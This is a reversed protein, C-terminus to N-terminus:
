LERGILAELQARAVRYDFRAQILAARAQDLQTQSTLLDLLTSAGLGYRQQQVRVDEEAAAVSAQQIRIRQEATRLLGLSQVLSQQAALRADRLQAESTRLAVDARVVTEERALQNFLPYSLTFRVSKSSPYSGNAFVIADGANWGSGALNGSYSANLSLTPLYPTRAARTAARAAVRNAEAQAVAPGEIALRSLELSDVPVFELTLTDSPAATVEFSAGVVRTLAANAARLDNRATLLALQANGVQIVSRLSDSKTAVGAAVRASAAKLQQEAQALQARAAAESERAALVAYYQQKVGLAVDFRAATESAEAAEVTAKASRLDHFRRGGDFLDLNASIGNTFNWPDRNLETIRGAVLTTGEQWASSANLSLSPIFAAYASRVSARSTREAGRAQVTAPANRQALRVAEDLPIPRASDGSATPLQAALSSAACLLAAALTISRSV